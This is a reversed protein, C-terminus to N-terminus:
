SELINLWITAYKSIYSIHANIIVSTELGDTIKKVTQLTFGGCQRGGERETERRITGESKEWIEREETQGERVSNQKGRELKEAQIKKCKGKFIIWLIQYPFRGKNHLPTEFIDKFWGLIFYIKRDIQIMGTPKTGLTNRKGSHGSLVGIIFVLSLWLSQVRKMSNRWIQISIVLDTNRGM